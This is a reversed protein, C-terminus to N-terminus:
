NLIVISGREPDKIVQAYRPIREQLEEVHSIIGVVRHEKYLQELTQFVIEISEKDLTGFGEDIFFFNKDFRNLSQISEALALALCLAAQFSQGGSLTKVSRTKGGNLYDMIEFGKDAEYILSLQNRTLRHFRENAVSCLNQLYMESIYEVFGNAQFMNSMVKLDAARLQLAEQEQEYTRKEQVLRKLTEIEKQLLVQEESHQQLQEKAINLENVAQSYVAEEFIATGMQLNLQQLQLEAAHLDKDYVDIAAQEQATDLAQELLLIVEELTEFPAQTLTNALATNINLLQEQLKQDQQEQMLISTELRALVEKQQQLTQTLQQYRTETQSIQESIQQALAQLGANDKEQWSSTDVAKMKDQLLEMAGKIQQAAATLEQVKQRFTDRKELCAQQQSRQQILEQESQRILDESARIRAQYAERKPGDERDFQDQWIFLADHVEQLTQLESAQMQLQQETKAYALRQEQMTAIAIRALQQAQLQEEAELLGKRADSMAQTIDEAHTLEHHVESGCLPCPKGDIIEQRYKALEAQLQLGALTENRQQVQKKLADLHAEWGEAPIGKQALTEDLGKILDTNERLSDRNLRKREELQEQKRYWETLALLLEPDPKDKKQIILAAELKSISESLRTYEGQEKDVFQQGNAVRQAITNYQEQYNRLALLNDLQQLAEKWSATKQYDLNLQELDAEQQKWLDLALSQEQRYRSLQQESEGVQTRYYKQQDLLGKFQVQALQYRGLREKRQKFSESQEELAHLKTAVQEKQEHLAKLAHLQDFSGQAQSVATRKEAVLTSLEQLATEKLQIDGAHYAAYQSLIGENRQIAELNRISLQKVPFAFDYQYLNFIEKLMEMRPAKTLELFEKFKGQPIIVTRKFNDYKLGLVAEANASALPVWAEDEWKYAMREITSTTGYDKKRRKWTATFRYHETATIRFEFDILAKDSKLNLMNYARRDGSDLRETAGYLVFSIAELISSKGSGVSGFIGFLGAETLTEFDITQKEQYSYFGEITLRIPLM